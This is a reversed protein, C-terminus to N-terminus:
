SYNNDGTVWDNAFSVPNERKRYLTEYFWKVIKARGPKTHTM